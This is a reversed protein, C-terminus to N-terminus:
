EREEGDEKECEKGGKPKEGGGGTDRGGERETVRRGDREIRGGGGVRWIEGEERVFDSM